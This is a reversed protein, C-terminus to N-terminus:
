EQAQFALRGPWAALIPDGSLSVLPVAYGARDAVDVPLLIDEAAGHQGAIRELLRRIGLRGIQYAPQTAVILPTGVLRSDDILSSVEFFSAVTLDQPVRM